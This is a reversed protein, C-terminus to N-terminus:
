GGALAARIRSRCTSRAADDIGPPLPITDAARGPRPSLVVVQAAIRLAEEIDHTVFLITQGLSRQLELLLDQMKERMQADLAAFPEDMLLVEPELVLARALAARQQMGGSLEDPYASAFGTLGILHLMHAVAEMRQTRPIKKRKLGFEVNQAVTLWPFLAPTQFVMGCKGRDQALPRGAYRVAGADPRDFGAIINLLTSKGCGSPGLLATIQGAPACLSLGELAPVVAGNETLFTRSIGDIVLGENM